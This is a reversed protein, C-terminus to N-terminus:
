TASWPRRHIPRLWVLSTSSMKSRFRCEMSLVSTEAVPSFKSTPRKAGDVDVCVFSRLFPDLREIRKLYESTFEVSSVEKRRIAQSQEIADLWIM